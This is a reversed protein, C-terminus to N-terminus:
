DMCNEGRVERMVKQIAQQEQKEKLPEALDDIQSLVDFLKSIYEKNM